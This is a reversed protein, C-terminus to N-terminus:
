TLCLALAAGYREPAVRKLVAVGRVCNFGGQKLLRVAYTDADAETHQEYRWALHGLEHGYVFAEEDKNKVLGRSVYITCGALSCSIAARADFPQTEVVSPCHAVLAVACVHAIISM